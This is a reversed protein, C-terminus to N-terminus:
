LNPIHARTTNELSEFEIVSHCTKLKICPLDNRCGSLVLELCTWVAKRVLENFVMRLQVVTGGHLVRYQLGIPM